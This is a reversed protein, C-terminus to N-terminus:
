RWPGARELFPGWFPGWIKNAEPSCSRGDAVLKDSFIASIRPSTSHKRNVSFLFITGLLPSSGGRGQSRWCRFSTRRGIGGDPCPIGRCLRRVDPLRAGKVPPGRNDVATQPHSPNNTPQRSQLAAEREIRDPEMVFQRWFNRNANPTAGKNGPGERSVFIAAGGCEIGQGGQASDGAPAFHRGDM